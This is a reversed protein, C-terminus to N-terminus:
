YRNTVVPKQRSERYYSTSLKPSLNAELDIWLKNVDVQLLELCTEM